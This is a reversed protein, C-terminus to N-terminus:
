FIVEILRITFGIANIGVFVIQQAFCHSQNSRRFYVALTIASVLFLSFGILQLGPSLFLAVILAGAIGSYSGIADLRRFRYSRDWFALSQYYVEVPLGRMTYYLRLTWHRLNIAM